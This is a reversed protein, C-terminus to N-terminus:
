APPISLHRRTAATDAYVRWEAVLDARIQARWLAPGALEPTACVSYGVVTVVDAAATISTFVNRYDPFAAFFGEWAGVCSDRGAVVGGESDVFRHDETMLVALGDIDRGNISDNFRVV